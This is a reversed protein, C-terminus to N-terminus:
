RRQARCACLQMRGSDQERHSVSPSVSGPARLGRPEPRGLDKGTGTELSHRVAWYSGPSLSELYVVAPNDTELDLPLTM